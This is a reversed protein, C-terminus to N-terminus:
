RYKTVYDTMTALQNRSVEEANEDEAFVSSVMVTDPRDYFGIEA